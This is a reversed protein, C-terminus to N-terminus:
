YQHGDLANPKTQERRKKNYEYALTLVDPLDKIFEPINSLQLLLKSLASSPQKGIYLIEEGIHSFDHLHIKKRVSDLHQSAVFDMEDLVPRGILPHEMDEEVIIQRVGLKFLPRLPTTNTVASIRMEKASRKQKDSEDRIAMNLMILEPVVEAKLPFGRNRADEVASRPIASYDSVTDALVTVKVGLYEATLYANQGDRNETTARNNSLNKFNAKKKDTDRKKKYGLFLVIAEDKATHPCGLM